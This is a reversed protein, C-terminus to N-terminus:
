GPIHWPEWPGTSARSGLLTVSDPVPHGPASCITWALQICCRTWGVRQLTISHLEPNLAHNHLAGLPRPEWDRQRGRDKPQGGVRGGDWTVGSRPRSRAAQLHRHNPGPGPAPRDPPFGPRLLFPSICLLAPAEVRRSLTVKPWWPVPPNPSCVVLLCELIISLAPMHSPSPPCGTSICLFPRPFCGLCPHHVLSRAVCHM